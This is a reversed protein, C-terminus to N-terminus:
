EIGLAINLVQRVNDMGITDNEGKVAKEEDEILTEINLAARLTFAADNLSVKGDLNVDGFAINDMDVVSYNLKNEKALKEMVSDKECVILYRHSKMTDIEYEKVDTVSKPVFLQSFQRSFYIGKDGFSTMSESLYLRKLYRPAAFAWNYVEEVTNPMKYSTGAKMEPYAILTKMDKSFLVGEVQCFYESDEAVKFAALNRLYETVSTKGGGIEKVSAPIYVTGNPKLDALYLAEFDIVEVCDPIRIEPVEGNTHVYKLVKGEIVYKVNDEEILKDGMNFSKVTEETIRNYNESSDNFMQIKECQQQEDSAVCVSQSVTGLVMIASFVTAITKKTNFKKMNNEKQMWTYLQLNSM